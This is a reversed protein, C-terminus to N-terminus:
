LFFALKRPIPIVIKFKNKPRYDDFREFIFVKKALICFDKLKIPRYQEKKYINNRFLDTKTFFVFLFSNM